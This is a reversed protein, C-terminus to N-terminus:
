PSDEKILWDIIQDNKVVFTVIKTKKSSTIQNFTLFEKDERKSYNILNNETFGYNPLYEKPMGFYILGQQTLTKEKNDPSIDFGITYAWDQLRGRETVIMVSKHNCAIFMLIILPLFLFKETNFNIM